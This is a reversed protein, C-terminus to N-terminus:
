AKIERTRSVWWALLALVVYAALGMIALSPPPPDIVGTPQATLWNVGQAVAMVAGLAAVPLWAKAGTGRTRVVFFALGGFAFILELPVEIAPYNWLGLGLPPPSGAITLDPRHVLLDIVWHSVVVAGGILAAAASRRWLWILLGFGAAWGLAGVLSHTWPMDYLDMPNMATIHPVLRMHEVGLLLFSFFALDILQTAVFLTGLRPARPSTAAVFAASYHGIFM